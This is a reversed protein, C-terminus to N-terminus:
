QHHARMPVCVREGQLRCRLGGQIHLHFIMRESHPPICCCQKEAGVSGSQRTKQRGYLNTQKGPASLWCYAHRDAIADRRSCGSEAVMSSRVQPKRTGYCPLGLETHRHYQCPDSIYPPLPRESVNRSQKDLLGAALLVLEDRELTDRTLHELGVLSRRWTIKAPSAHIMFDIFLRRAKPHRAISTNSLKCVAGLPVSDSGTFVDIFADIITDKFAPVCDYDRAIALTDAWETLDIAPSSDCRKCLKGTYVWHVLHELENVDHDVRVQIPPKTADDEDVADENVM